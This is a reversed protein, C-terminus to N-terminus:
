SWQNKPFSNRKKKVFVLAVVLGLVVALPIIRKLSLLDEGELVDLNDEIVQKEPQKENQEAALLEINEATTASSNTQNTTKVSNRGGGGSGGNGTQTATEEQPQEEIIVKLWIGVALGVNSGETMGKFIVVGRYTGTEKGTICIEVTKEGFVNEIEKLYSVNLEYDISEKIFKKADWETFNEPSWRDTGEFNTTTDTLLVVTQCLEEEPQM